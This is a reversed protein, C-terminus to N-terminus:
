LIAPENPILRKCALVRRTMTIKAVWSQIIHMAKRKCNKKKKKKTAIMVQM